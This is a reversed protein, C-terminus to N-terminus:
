RKREFHLPRVAVCDILAPSGAVSHAHLLVEFYDPLTGGNAKRLREMLENRSKPSSLFRIVAETGELRLGQLLLADGQQGMGPVLSITAFDDGSHGTAETIMYSSEEGPKPSRNQIYRGGSKGNDVLRFNLRDEYLKVWPNSTHAGIFIFNGNSLLNGNVEKASRIVLNDRLSGALEAMAFAAHADAMSTIQSSQLYHFLRLEGETADKPILKDAYHHDAYQDLTVESDGLLHLVYSGDALVMTTQRGPQIIRSLPWVPQPSASAQSWRYWGVAALLLSAAVLFWPIWLSIAHSRRSVEGPSDESTQIRSPAEVVPQNSPPAPSQRVRFALAYGGKPIELIVREDKGAGQYYEHLRLRLQRVYVRVCSDEAPNFDGPKDFVMRGIAQETLGARDHQLTRVALYRLLQPLRSSKQLGESGAIREVAELKEDEPYIQESSSDNM